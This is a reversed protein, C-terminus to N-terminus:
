AGTLYSTVLALVRTLPTVFCNGQTPIAVGIATLRVGPFRAEPRIILAIRRNTFTGVMHKIGATTPLTIQATGSGVHSVCTAGTYTYDVGFSGPGTIRHGGIKGVCTMSGTEGNTTVAGSSPTVRLGPTFTAAIRNVCVASTAGAAQAPAAALPGAAALAALAVATRLPRQAPITIM